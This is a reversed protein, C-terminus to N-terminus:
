GHSAIFAEFQEVYNRLLEALGPEPEGNADFSDPRLSLYTEPRGMVIAGLIPLISRLNSQAM